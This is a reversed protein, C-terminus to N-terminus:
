RSCSPGARHRGHVARRDLHQDIRRVAGPHDLAAGLIGLRARPDRDRRRRVPASLRLGGDRADHDLRDCCRHRREFRFDGRFMACPRWVPLASGARCIDSWRPRSVRDNPARRRRSDPIHRGPHFFPIAMIGFNDLGSFCAQARCKRDASGDDHVPLDPRDPGLSISIPM